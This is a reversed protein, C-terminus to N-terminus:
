KPAAQTPIARIKDALDPSVLVEFYVSDGGDCGTDFLDATVTDSVRFNFDDLVREQVSNCDGYYPVGYRDISPCVSLVNTVVMSSYEEETFGGKVVRLYEPDAWSLAGAKLVVQEMTLPRDPLNMSPKDKAFIRFDDPDIFAALGDTDAVDVFEGTSALEIEHHALYILSVWGDKIKDVMESSHVIRNECEKAVALYTAYNNCRFARALAEHVDALKLKVGRGELEEKLVRAQEKFGAVSPISIGNKTSFITTQM